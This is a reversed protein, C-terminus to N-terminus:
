SDKRFVVVYCFANGIQRDFVLGAKKAWKKVTRRMPYDPDLLLEAEAFVGHQKLLRKAQLIAKVPNPIEPIVAVSFVADAIEDDLPIKGEADALIPTINSVGEREMRAKLKELMGEQIDVAYVMGDPRIAKAIAVTYFGAGCGIEVVIMGSKAVIADVIMSPPQVRKRYSGAAIVNGMAAPM